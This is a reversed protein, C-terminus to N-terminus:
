SAGGLDLVLGPRIVGGVAPIERGQGLQRTMKERVMEAAVFRLSRDTIQDEPFLHPSAPM